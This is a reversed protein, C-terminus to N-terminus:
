AIKGTNAENYAIWYPNEIGLGQSGYPWFQVPIERNPDYHEYTRYKNIDDGPPLLYAGLLPNHYQGQAIMNKNDSLVYMGSFDVSLNNTLQSTQRLYFNYRNYKNQPIIGNANDTGISFFTQNKETGGSFNVSNFINTGMQFFDKPNYTSPISLKNGWSQMQLPDAQGYTNQFDPMVFPTFFDSSHSLSIRLKGSSGKKTTVVVVGNAGQNGYLATASPGTLASISEIDEPNVSAIGESTVTGSFAGTSNQGGNSNPMPMGDVVYLVNNNGTISKTGRMVVRTAGGIGSSSSNISVGAIKGALANVFNSADKNRTIEEAKVEQVNYTLARTAKRIGLATVVVQDIEKSKPRLKVAITAGDTVTIEQLAYGVYTVVLVDGPDAEISFRGDADTFVGRSILTRGKIKLSVSAGALPKGTSDAVTGKITIPQKEPIAVEPQKFTTMMKKERAVISITNGIIKYNVPQGIMVEELAKVLPVDKFDVSVPKTQKLATNDYFFLYNTQDEMVAFLKQLSVSKASYTITNQFSHASADYFFLVFLFFMLRSGASYLANKKQM